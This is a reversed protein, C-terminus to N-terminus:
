LMECTFTIKVGAAKLGDICEGITLDHRKSGMTEPTTKSKKVKPLLDMRSDTMKVEGDAVSVSAGRVYKYKGSTIGNFDNKQFAEDFLRWVAAGVKDFLRENRVMSVYSPNINMPTAIDKASVGHKTIQDCIWNSILQKNMTTKM